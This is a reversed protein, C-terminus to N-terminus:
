NSNTKSISVSILEYLQRLEPTQQLLKLHETVTNVDGRIAPGTQAQVPTLHQIKNATELILPKLISFDFQHEKAIKEAIFYMHNTFNNAFVAALHLYKRQASEIIYVKKSIKDALQELIRYNEETNAELCIPINAFNYQINLSFSQVPWFVGNNAFNHLVTIPTLGSCHVVIAKTKLANAIEFIAGDPVAIFVVDADQALQNLNTYVKSNCIAAL